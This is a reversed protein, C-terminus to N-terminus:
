PYLNEEQMMVPVSTEDTRKFKDVYSLVKKIQELNQSHLTPYMVSFLEMSM